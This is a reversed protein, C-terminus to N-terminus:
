VPLGTFEFSRGHVPIAYFPVPFLEGAFHLLLPPLQGVVVECADGTLAILEEPAHLLLVSDRSVLSLTLHAIPFAPKSKKRGAVKVLTSSHRIFSSPCNTAPMKMPQKANPAFAAFGLLSSAFASYLAAM